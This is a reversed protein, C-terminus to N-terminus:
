PQAQTFQEDLYLVADLLDDLAAVAEVTQDLGHQRDGRSELEVFGQPRDDVGRDFQDVRAIARETHAPVVVFQDFEDVLADVFGGPFPDPVERLDRRERTDEDVLGFGIRRSLM